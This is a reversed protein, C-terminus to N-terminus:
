IAEMMTNIKRGALWKLVNCAPPKITLTLAVGSSVKTSDTCLFVIINQGATTPIGSILGGSSLSLGTPLSGQNISWAYPAIGGQARLGFSYVTNVRGNPLSMTLIAPTPPQPPPNPPAPQPPPLPKGTIQEITSRLAPVNLSDTAPNLWNDVSDIIGFAEDVYADWFPWTMQVLEGWTICVPGIDNYAFAYVAHLGWSGPAADPGPIIDWGQGRNFQSQASKPLKLGFYSGRLLYICYKAETHDKWDISAYADIFYQKGGAIWGYQRWKNLSDLIVLGTDPGGTELFYENVVDQDTIATPTGQEFREFALTMHARAAIVCDGYKTNNFANNDVIGLSDFVSYSAPLPPLNGPVMIRALPITREDIRATKKGLKYNM